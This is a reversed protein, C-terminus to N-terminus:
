DLIVECFIGDREEAFLVPKGGRISPKPFKKVRVTGNKIEEGSRMCVRAIGSELLKGVPIDGSLGRLNGLLVYRGDNGTAALGLGALAGIIGDNTGGLGELVVGTCQAIDRAMEQTLVEQKARLGFEIIGPHIDEKRAIALGPDSGEIFDDTMIDRVREFIQGPDTGNELHIVACDNHSTFPIDPHVLLQHRSVGKVKYGSGTFQRAIERALRGTGRSDLTDTDDLSIYLSM